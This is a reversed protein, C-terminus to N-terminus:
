SISPRADLIERVKTALQSPQFPKELCAIRETVLQDFLLTGEAYGSMMLVPTGPMRALLERRLMLGDMEPMVLDSVALDIPGDYAQALALAERGHGAELVTYGARSLVERALTRVSPEDEVLLITESGRPLANRLRSSRRGQGEGTRAPLYIRFRSGSGPTSSVEIGGGSQTVIGYVTALGLGTGKGEEKTTFFPEFIRAVTEKDMGCGTDAVELEVYRGAALGGIRRGAAAGLTVHRTAILLEGGGTMADRANVALNALVQELQGPDALVVAGEPDLDTTLRVDEGILRKLMRAVDEIVRNTDIVRPELVQKRSFALLQRTLASASYAANLVEQFDRSVPDGPAVRRLVLETYGTIVTLLNNFDHAVGGALRGMAEMKQSQRLQEQSSRLEAEASRRDTVEEHVVVVRAGANVDFRSAHVVFSREGAECDCRYDSVLPPGPEALLRAIGEYIQQEGEVCAGGHCPLEYQGGVRREAGDLWRWWAANASVVVGSEELIAIPLAIADVTCQLFAESARLRQIATSRELAYKIARALLPGGLESKNVFDQAGLRVAAAGLEGDDIGTLLIIAADGASAAVSTFTALGSTGPLCLDLLVVDFARRRLLGSAEDLNSAHDISFDAGSSEALYARVLRADAASDEVLLIDIPRTTM